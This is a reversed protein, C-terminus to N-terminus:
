KREKCQSRLVKHDLKRLIGWTRSSRKDKVLYKSIYSAVKAKADKWKGGPAVYNIRGLGLPLLMECFSALKTKHVYPAIGVMHVHAHHKWQQKEVVLDSWILRTTCEVVFTGGLIGNSKLKEIAKPMLKNLKKLEIKNTALETQVSPLAFTLLKPRAYKREGIVYSLKWIKDLRKRMRQYRRQLTNCNTCRHPFHLAKWGLQGTRPSIRGSRVWDESDDRQPIWLCDSCTFGWEKKKVQKSSLIRM